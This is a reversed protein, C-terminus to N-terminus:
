NRQGYIAFVAHLTKVGIAIRESRDGKYDLRPYRSKTSESFFPPVCVFSGLVSCMVLKTATVPLAM